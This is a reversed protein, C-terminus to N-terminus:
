FTLANTLMEAELNDNLQSHTLHYFPTASLSALSMDLSEDFALSSVPSLYVKNEGPASFFVAKYDLSLPMVEEFDILRNGNLDNENDRLTRGCGDFSP